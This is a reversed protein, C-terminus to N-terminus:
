IISSRSLAKMPRRFRRRPITFASEKGDGTKWPRIGSTESPFVVQRSPSFLSETSIDHPISPNGHHSSHCILSGGLYGVLSRGLYGVLSRGLYGVLSGKLYGVLSGRLYGVLSGKLYGVLSRGLYQRISVDQDHIFSAHERVPLFRVGFALSPLQQRM